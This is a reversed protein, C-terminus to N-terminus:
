GILSAGDAKLLFNVEVAGNPTDLSGTWKGDVDAAFVPMAALLLGLVLMQTKM